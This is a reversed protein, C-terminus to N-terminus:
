VFLPRRHSSPSLSLSFSAAASSSPPLSPHISSPSLSPSLSSLREASGSLRSELHPPLLLTATKAGVLSSQSYGRCMDRRRRYILGLLSWAGLELSPAAGCGCFGEARVGLLLAALSLRVGVLGSRRSFGTIAEAPRRRTCHFCSWTIFVQNFWESGSGGEEERRAGENAKLLYKAADWVETRRSWFCRQSYFHTSM